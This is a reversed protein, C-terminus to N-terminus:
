QHLLKGLETIREDNEMIAKHLQRAEEPAERLAIRVYGMWLKNTKVRIAEIEDVIQQETMTNM